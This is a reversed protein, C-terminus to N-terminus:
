LRQFVLGDDLSYLEKWHNHRLWDASRSVAGGSWKLDDLFIIGGPIVAPAFRETDILAQEGHNGDIRLVGLGKPTPYMRYADSTSRVLKIWRQLAYREVEMQCVQYISEHDCSKWWREDEPNLQGKASEDSDWPDIGIVSGTGIFRHAMGMPVIGRGAYVGIEMSLKPRLAIITSAIICAKEPSTWGHPNAANAAKIESLLQNM